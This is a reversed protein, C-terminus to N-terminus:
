TTLDSPHPCYALLMPMAPASSPTNYTTQSTPQPLSCSPVPCPQQTSSHAAHLLSPRTSTVQRALCAHAAPAPLSRAHPHPYGHLPYAPTPAMTSSAATTQHALRLHMAYPDDAPLSFALRPSPMSTARPGPMPQQCTALCLRALTTLQGPADTPCPHTAPKAWTTVHAHVLSTAPPRLRTWPMRMPIPNPHGCPAPSPTTCAPRAISVLRPTCACLRPDHPLGIAHSFGCNTPM